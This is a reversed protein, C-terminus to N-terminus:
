RYIKDNYLNELLKEKDFMKPNLQYILELNIKPNRSRMRILADLFPKESESFSKMELARNFRVEVMNKEGINTLLSFFSFFLAVITLALLLANLESMTGSYLGYLAFIEGCFLIIFLSLFMISIGGRFVDYFKFLDLKKTDIFKILKPIKIEDTKKQEPM